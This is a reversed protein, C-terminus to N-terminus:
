FSKIDFLMNIIQKTIWNRPKLSVSEPTVWSAGTGLNQFVNSCETTSNLVTSGTLTIGGWIGTTRATGYIRLNEFAREQKKQLKRFESNGIEQCYRHQAIWTETLKDIKKEFEKQIDELSKQKDPDEPVPKLLHEIKGIHEYDEPIPLAALVAPLLFQHSYTLKDLDFYRYKM